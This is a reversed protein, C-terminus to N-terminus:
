LDGQIMEKSSPSLLYVSRLVTLSYCKFVGPSREKGREVKLRKIATGEFFLNLVRDSPKM